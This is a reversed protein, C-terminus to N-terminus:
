VGAGGHQDYISNLDSDLGFVRLEQDVQVVCAVVNQMLLDRLAKESRPSLSTVSNETDWVFFTSDGFVKLWMWQDDGVGSRGLAGSFNWIAESGPLQTNCQKRLSTLAADFDRRRVLRRRPWQETRAQVVIRDSPGRLMDSLFPSVSDLSCTGTGLEGGGNKLAPRRPFSAILLQQRMISGTKPIPPEARLCTTIKLAPRM